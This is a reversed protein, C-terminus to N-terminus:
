YALYQYAFLLLAQTHGKLVTVLCRNLLFFFFILTEGRVIRVVPAYCSFHISKREVAKFPFSVVKLFDHMPGPLQCIRIWIEFALHQPLRILLLPNVWPFSFFFLIVEKMGLMSGQSCYMHRQFILHQTVVGSFLFISALYCFSFGLPCRCPPKSEEPESVCLYNRNWTRLLPLPHSSLLQENIKYVLGLM